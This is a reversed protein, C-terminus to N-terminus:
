TTRFRPRLGHSPLSELPEQQQQKHTNARKRPKAGCLCALKNHMNLVQLLPWDLSNFNGNVSNDVGPYRSAIAFSHERQAVARLFSVRDRKRQEV